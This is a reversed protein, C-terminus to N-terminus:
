QLNAQFEVGSRYGVGTQCGFGVESSGDDASVLEAYLSRPLSQGDGKGRVAVNRGPPLGRTSKAPNPHELPM